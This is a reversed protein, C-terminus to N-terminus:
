RRTRRAVRGIACAQYFGIGLPPTFLGLSMGLVMIIAYHM